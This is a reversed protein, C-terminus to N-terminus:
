EGEDLLPCDFHYPKFNDYPNIFSDMTPDECNNEVMMKHLNCQPPWELESNDAMMPCNFCGQNDVDVVMDVLIEGNSVIKIHKVTIM